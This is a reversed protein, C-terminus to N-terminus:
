KRYYFLIGAAAVIAILTMNNNVFSQAQEKYGYMGPNNQHTPYTNMVNGIGFVGPPPLMDIGDNGYIHIKGDGMENSVPASGFGFFGNSTPTPKRGM